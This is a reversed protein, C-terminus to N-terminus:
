SRNTYNFSNNLKLVETNENIIQFYIDLAYYTLWYINSICNFPLKNIYQWSVEESEGTTLIGHEERQICLLVDVTYNIGKIIGINIWEIPQTTIKCEEKFERSICQQPNEGKEIHGGPFNYLGKQWQPRNKLILAVKKLESNFYVGITYKIKEM